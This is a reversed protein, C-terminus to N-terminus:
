NHKTAGSTRSFRRATVYLMGVFLLLALLLAVSIVARDLLPSGPELLVGSPHVGVVPSMMRVSWSWPIMWWATHDAVIGFGFGFLFNIIVAVALGLKRAVFLIFPIEWLTTLWLLAIAGASQALSISYNPLLFGVAVMGGWFMVLAALTYLAVMVVKACWIKQLSVPLVLLGQYRSAHQEKQHSLGCLLGIMLPLFIISWWNFTTTVFFSPNMLFSLSLNMLAIVPLMKRSATRKFKLHEALLYSRLPLPPKMM